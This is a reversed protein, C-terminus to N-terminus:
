GKSLTVRRPRFLRIYRMGHLSSSIGFRKPMFSFIDIEPDDANDLIVCWDKQQTSLWNLADKYSDSRHIGGQSRIISEYDTKLTEESEANIFYVAAEPYRSLTLTRFLSLQVSNVYRAEFDLAFRLAIQTKGSGGLGTLVTIAPMDSGSPREELHTQRMAELIEERGVFNPVM